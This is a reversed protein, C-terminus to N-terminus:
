FYNLKNRHLILYFIMPVGVVPTIVNVPLLGSATPIVTCLACLQMLGAGCLITAPILVNHNSTGFLSRAIHPVILGIFGIPGCFATVIATLIGSIFLLEARLLRMSYGMSVAYREGLLLANLPKGLLICGGMGLILPISFFWVQNMRLGSFSGLGWVVFNKVDESPALYNLLSIISSAMYGIMVGVILLMVPSKLVTNLGLLAGTVLGAGALAGAVSLLQLDVHYIGVLNAGLMIVAVGLSAGSSVGLVSPGALPNRFTTQLLLGAVSLASGSLLAAIAMPLRSERVIITITDDALMKGTLAIWIDSVPIQVAGVCLLGCFAALTVATLCIFLLTARMM